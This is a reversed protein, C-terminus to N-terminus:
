EVLSIESAVADMGDGTIESQLMTNCRRTLCVAKSRRSEDCEACEVWKGKEFRNKSTGQLLIDGVTVSTMLPIYYCVRMVFPITTGCLWRLGYGLWYYPRKESFPTRKRYIFITYVNPLGSISHCLLSLKKLSERKASLDAQQKIKLM